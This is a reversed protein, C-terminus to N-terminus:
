WMGSHLLTSEPDDLITAPPFVGSPGTRRGDPETGSEALWETVQAALAELGSTYREWLIEPYSTGGHQNSAREPFRAAEAYSAAGNHVLDAATSRVADQYEIRLSDWGIVRAAVRASLDDIWLQVDATTVGKQGPALTDTITAHPLLASVGDPTAGWLGGGDQTATM